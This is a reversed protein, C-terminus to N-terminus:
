RGGEPNNSEDAVTAFMSLLERWRSGDNRIAPRFRAPLALSLACAAGRRLNPIRSRMSNVCIM